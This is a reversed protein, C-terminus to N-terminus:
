ATARRREKWRDESAEGGTFVASARPGYLQSLQRM